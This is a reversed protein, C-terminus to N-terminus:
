SRMVPSADEGWGVCPQRIPRGVRALRLWTNEIGKVGPYVTESQADYVLYVTEAVSGCVMVHQRSTIGEFHHLHIEPVLSVRKIFAAEKRLSFSKSILGM